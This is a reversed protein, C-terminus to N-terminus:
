GSIRQYIEMIINRRKKKSHITSKKDYKWLLKRLQLEAYFARETVIKEKLSQVAKHINGPSVAEDVIKKIRRKIAPHEVSEELSRKFNKSQLLVAIDDDVYGMKSLIVSNFVKLRRKLEEVLISRALPKSRLVSRYFPGSTIEEPSLGEIIEIVRKMRKSAPVKELTAASVQRQSIQESSLDMSALKLKFSVGEFARHPLSSLEEDIRSYFAASTIPKQEEIRDATDDSDQSGNNKDPDSGEAEKKWKESAAKMAMQTGLMQSYNAGFKNDSLMAIGITSMGSIFQQKGMHKQLSKAYDENSQGAEQEPPPFMMGIGEGIIGHIAGGGMGSWLTNWDKTQIAGAIGAATSNGMSSLFASPTEGFLGKQASPSFFAAQASSTLIARMMGTQNGHTVATYVSTTVANVLYDKGGLVKNLNDNVFKSNLGGDLAGHLAGEGGGSIAGLVAGNTISVLSADGMLDTLQKNMADTSWAQSLGEKWAADMWDGEFKSTIAGMMAGQLGAGGIESFHKALEGSVDGSSAVGYAFGWPVENIDFGSNVYADIGGKIGSELWDETGIGLKGLLDGGFTNWLEKGTEKILDSLDPDVEPLDFKDLELGVYEDKYRYNRSMNNTKKIIENYYGVNKYRQDDFKKYFGIVLATLAFFLVLVMALEVTSQGRASKIKKLKM